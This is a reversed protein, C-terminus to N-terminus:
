MLSPTGWLRDPRNEFSLIRRVSDSISSWKRPGILVIAEMSKTRMNTHYTKVATVKINDVPNDYPSIQHVNVWTRPHLEESVNM